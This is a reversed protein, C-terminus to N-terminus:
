KQQQNTFLAAAMHGRAWAQEALGTFPNDHRGDTNADPM